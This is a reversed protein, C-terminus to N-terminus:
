LFACRRRYCLRTHQRALGRKSAAHPPVPGPACAPSDRPRTLARCRRFAGRDKWRRQRERPLTSSPDRRTRADVRSYVVRPEDRGVRPQRSTGSKVAFVVDTVRPTQFAESFPVCQMTMLRAREERSRRRGSPRERGRADRSHTMRVCFEPHSPEWSAPWPASIRRCPWRLRHRRADALLPLEDEVRARPDFPEDPTDTCRKWTASTSLDDGRDWSARSAPLSSRARPGRGVSSQPEKAALPPHIPPSATAL